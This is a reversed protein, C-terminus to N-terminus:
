KSVNPATLFCLTLETIPCQIKKWKEIHSKKHTHRHPHINLTRFHMVKIQHNIINLNLCPLEKNRGLSTRALLGFSSSLYFLSILQELVSLM